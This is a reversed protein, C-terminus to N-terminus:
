GNPTRMQLQTSSQAARNEYAKIEEDIEPERIDDFYIHKLAQISTLREAPDM